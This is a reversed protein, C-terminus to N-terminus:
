RKAKELQTFIMEALIKKEDDTLENATKNEIEEIFQNKFKIIQEDTLKLEDLNIKTTIM